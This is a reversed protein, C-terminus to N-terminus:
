PAHTAYMKRRGGSQGATAGYPGGDVSWRHVVPAALPASAVAAASIAQILTPRLCRSCVGM